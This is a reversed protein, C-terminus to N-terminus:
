LKISFVIFFIVASNQVNNKGKNPETITKSSELFLVLSILYKENAIDIIVKIQENNINKIKIFAIWVDL